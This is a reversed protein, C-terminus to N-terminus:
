VRIGEKAPLLAGPLRCRDCGSCVRAARYRRAAVSSARQSCFLCYASRQDGAHPYQAKHRRVRCCACAVVSEGTFM